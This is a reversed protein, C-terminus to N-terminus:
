NACCQRRVEDAMEPSLSAWAPPPETAAVRSTYVTYGDYDPYSNSALLWFLTGASVPVRPHPLARKGAAGVTKGSAEM